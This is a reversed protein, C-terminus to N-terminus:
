VCFLHMLNKTKPSIFAMMIGNNKEFSNKGSSGAAETVILPGGVGAVLNFADGSKEM